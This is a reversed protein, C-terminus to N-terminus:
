DDSEGLGEIVVPIIALPGLATYIYWRIAEKKSVATAAYLFFIASCFVHFLLYFPLVQEM